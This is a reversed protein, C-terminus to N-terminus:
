AVALQAPAEGQFTEWSTKLERRLQSIRGSSVKFRKAVAGTSEGTALLKAIRRQRAPLIGLWESFDIRAAATEAPGARRDEILIERWEGTEKDRHDLRKVCIGKAVQAYPSGVDNANSKTGVRRGAKTQRIAYVGLPTGFALSERGLQVLRAFGVLANAVVEATFEERSEPDKGRSAVRAQRVILPLISLFKAQQEPTLRVRSPTAHAIM